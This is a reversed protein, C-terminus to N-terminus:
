KDNNYNLAILDFEDPEIGNELLVHSLYQRQADLRELESTMLDIKIQDFTMVDLAAIRYKRAQIQTRIDHAIVTAAFIAPVLFKKPM